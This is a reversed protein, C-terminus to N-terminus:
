KTSRTSLLIKKPNQDVKEAEATLPSDRRVPCGNVQVWNPSWTHKKTSKREEQHLYQRFYAKRSPVLDIRERQSSIKSGSSTLLACRDVADWSTYHLMHLMQCSSRWVDCDFAPFIHPVFSLPMRRIRLQPVPLPSSRFLETPHATSVEGETPICM